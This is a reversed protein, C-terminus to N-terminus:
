EFIYNVNNLQDDTYGCETYNPINEFYNNIECEVKDFILQQKKTYKLKEYFKYLNNIEPFLQYMKPPIGYNLMGYLGGEHNFKLKLRVKELLNYDEIKKNM